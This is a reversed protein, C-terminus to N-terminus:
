QKPTFVLERLAVEDGRRLAEIIAGNDLPPADKSQTINLLKLARDSGALRTKLDAVVEAFADEGKGIIQVTTADLAESIPKLARDLTINHKKLLPALENQVTASNTVVQPTNIMSESYGAATVAATPTAGKALHEIVVMQKPTPKTKKKASMLWIIVYLM